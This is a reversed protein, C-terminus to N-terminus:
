VPAKQSEILAKLAPFAKDQEPDYSTGHEIFLVYKNVSCGRCNTCHQNKDIGCRCVYVSEGRNLLTEFTAKIYDCHGYNLGCGPIISNVVNCNNVGDFANLAPAFKTYTWYKTNPTETVITLWTEVTNYFSTIEFDGAAHIRCYEIKDAKIQALIARKVFDPYMRILVTKIALSKRVSSFRYCGNDAYCGPCNCSCTGKIDIYDPKEKAGVNISFWKNTALVSWTWVGRGLKKNGNVLFPNIWGFVPAYIKGNKYEIEFSAYIDKKTRM